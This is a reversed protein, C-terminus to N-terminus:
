KVMSKRIKNVLDVVDTANYKKLLDDLKIDENTTKIEYLPALLERKLPKQIESKIVDKLALLEQIIDLISSM